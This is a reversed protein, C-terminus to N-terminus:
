NSDIVETLNREFYQGVDEFRQQIHLRLSAKFVITSCQSVRLSCFFKDDVYRNFYGQTSLKVETEQHQLWQGHSFFFETQVHLSLLHSSTNGGYKCGYREAWGLFIGSWKGTGSDDKDFSQISGYVDDEWRWIQSSSPVPCSFLQLLLRIATCPTPYQSKGEWTICIVHRHHREPSSFVSKIQTM